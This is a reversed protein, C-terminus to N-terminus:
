NPNIKERFDKIKRYEIVVFKVLFYSTLTFITAVIINGVLYRRSVEYIQQIHSINYNIIPTHGFILDGIGYSLFYIISMTLPNWFVIAALLSYKNLKKFILMIIITILVNFGPTPLVNILTGIAFGMAISHPSRKTKMVEHFHYKVKEKIRRFTKEIM